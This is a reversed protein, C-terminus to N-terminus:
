RRTLNSTHESVISCSNVCGRRRNSRLSAALTDRYRNISLSDNLLRKVGFLKARLAIECSYRSAPKVGRNDTRARSECNSLDQLIRTPPAPSTKQHTGFSRPSFSRSNALTYYFRASAGSSFFGPPPPKQALSRQSQRCVIISGADEPFRCNVGEGGARARVRRQYIKDKITRAARTGRARHEEIDRSSDSSVVIGDRVGGERLTAWMKRKVVSLASRAFGGAVRFRFRLYSRYNVSPFNTTTRTKPSVNERKCAYIM